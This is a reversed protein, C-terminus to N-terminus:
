AMMVDWSHAALRAAHPAAWQCAMCLNACSIATSSGKGCPMTTHATALMREYSEASVSASLVITKIVLTTM